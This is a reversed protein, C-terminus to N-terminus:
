FPTFYLYLLRGSYPVPTCNIFDCDKYKVFSSPAVTPIVLTSFIWCQKDMRCIQFIARKRRNSFRHCRATRRTVKDEYSCKCWILRATKAMGALRKRRVHDSFTPRRALASRM